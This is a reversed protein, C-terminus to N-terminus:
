NIYITIRFIFNINRKNFSVKHYEIYDQMNKRMLTNDPLNSFELINRLGPKYSALGEIYTDTAFIPVSIIISMVLMIVRKTTLDSLKKGM